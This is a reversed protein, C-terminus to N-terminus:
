VGPSPLQVFAYIKEMSVMEGGEEKGTFLLNIVKSDTWKWIAHYYLLLIIM